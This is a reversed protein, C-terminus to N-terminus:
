RGRTPSPTLVRSLWRLTLQYRERSRGGHNGAHETVEHVVGAENLYHSLL